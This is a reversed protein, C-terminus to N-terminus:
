AGALLDEPQDPLHAAVSLDAPRTADGLKNSRGMDIRLECIHMGHQPEREGVVLEHEPVVRFAGVAALTRGDKGNMEYSGVVILSWSASWAALDHMLSDRPDHDDRDRDDYVRPRDDRRDLEGYERPIVGDHM